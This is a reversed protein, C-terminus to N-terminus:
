LELVGRLHKGSDIIVAENCTQGALSTGGGRNTIPAGHQRCIEIAALIDETSRPNVVGIPLQRYNSGDTAYLARDGPSFRGEGKLKHKLRRALGTADGHLAHSETAKAPRKPATATM